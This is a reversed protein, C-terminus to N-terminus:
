RNTSLVIELGHVHTSARQPGNVTRRETEGDKEGKHGAISMM